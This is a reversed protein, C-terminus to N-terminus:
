KVRRRNARNYCIIRSANSAVVAWAVPILALSGARHIVAIAVVITAAGAFSAVALGRWRESAVAVGFDWNWQDWGIQAVCLVAVVWEIGVFDDGLLTDGWFALATVIVASSVVSVALRTVVVIKSQPDSGSQQTIHRVLRSYAVQNIAQGTAGAAKACTLAVAYVGLDAPTLLAAIAIQDSRITVQDIAMSIGLRSNATVQVPTAWSCSRLVAISSFASVTLALCQGAFMAWFATWFNLADLAFLAIQGLSPVVLVSARYANFWAHQDRDVLQEAGLRSLGALVFLFGALRTAVVTDGDGGSLAPASLYIVLAGILSLLILVWLGVASSTGRRVNSISLTRPLGLFIAFELASPLLFAAALGGRGTAGLEHAIM